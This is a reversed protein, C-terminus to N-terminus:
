PAFHNVLRIIVWVSFGTLGLGLAVCFWWFVEFRKQFTEQKKHFDQFRKNLDNNM